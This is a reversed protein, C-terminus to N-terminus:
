HGFENGYIKIISDIALMVGTSGTACVGGGMVTHNNSIYCNGKIDLNTHQPSISGGNSDTASNM